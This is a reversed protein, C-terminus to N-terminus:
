CLKERKSMKELDFVYMRADHDEGNGRVNELFKWGYREYFGTHDTLLYLKKLGFEKMDEEVTLLLKGAIGRNRYDSEVFVACVNPCLDKRPHFDNEIVGLGGVIKSGNTAVYWQPIAKQNSIQSMSDYYSDFPINWKSCFFECASEILSTNERIKLIKIDQNKM